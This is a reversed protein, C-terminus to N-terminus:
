LIDPAKLEQFIRCDATRTLFWLSPRVIATYSVYDGQRGTQAFETVIGHFYRTDAGPQDIEVTVDKGLVDDLEIDEKPSLLNLECHYLRALEETLEMGSFLLDEGLPTKVRVPQSSM